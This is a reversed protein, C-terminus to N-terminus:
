GTHLIYHRPPPKLYTKGPTAHDLKVFQYYIKLHATWFLWSSRTLPIHKKQLDVVSNRWELFRRKKPDPFARDRVTKAPDLRGPPLPSSNPVESSSTTVTTYLDCLFIVHQTTTENKNKNENRDKVLIKWIPQFWWSAYFQCMRWQVMTIYIYIYIYIVM